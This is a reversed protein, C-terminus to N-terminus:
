ESSDKPSKSRLSFSVRKKDKHKLLLGERNLISLWKRVTVESYNVIEAVDDVTVAIGAQSLALLIEEGAPERHNRAVNLGQEQFKKETM